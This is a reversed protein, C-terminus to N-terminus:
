PSAVAPVYAVFDGDGVFVYVPQLFLQSDYTDYYAIYTNRITVELLGDPNQAVYADGATLKNWATEADVIEYRGSTFYSVPWYQWTLKLIKKASNQSGSILLSIIGRSPDPTVTSIRDIASRFFDVQVVDAESLTAVSVLKGESFKFPSTQIRFRDIDFPLLQNRELFDIAESAVSGVQFTKPGFITIDEEFKYELMLHKSLTDITLSRLPNAIDTWQYLSATKQVPEATFGLQAASAKATNLALFNPREKPMFYVKATDSAEPLSGDLTGLRYSIGNTPLNNEPFQIEELQGLRNDPEPTKELIVNKITTLAVDFLFRLVFYLIIVVIAWKVGRRSYYATETLNSM